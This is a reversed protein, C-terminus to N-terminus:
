TRGGPFDASCNKYLAFNAALKSEDCFNCCEGCPSSLVDLCSAAGSSVFGAVDACTANAYSEGNALTLACNPCQGGAHCNFPSALVLLLVVLLHRVFPATPLSRGMPRSNHKKVFM